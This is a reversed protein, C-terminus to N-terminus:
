YIGLCCCCCALLCAAAYCLMAYCLKVDACCGSQSLRERPVDTVNHQQLPETSRPLLLLLLLLLLLCAAAARPRGPGARGPGARPVDTM